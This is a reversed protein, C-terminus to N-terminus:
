RGAKIRETTLDNEYMMRVLEPFGVRPKWGLVQRAKSADGFLLDVEATLIAKILENPTVQEKALKFLSQTEKSLKISKARREFIGGGPSILAANYDSWASRPLDFLRQREAISKAPDPNPDIFIHMHNFAAVMKTHPSLLMGNGFVDGSM